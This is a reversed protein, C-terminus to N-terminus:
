DDENESDERTEFTDIQKILLKNKFTLDEIEKKDDNIFAEVNRLKRVADHALTIIQGPKETYERDQLIASMAMLVGEVYSLGKITEMM